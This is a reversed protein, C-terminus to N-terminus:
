RSGLLTTPRGINGGCQAAGLTVWCRWGFPLRAPMIASAGFPAGSCILSPEGRLEGPQKQLWIVAM